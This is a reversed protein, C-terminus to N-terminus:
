AQSGGMEKPHNKGGKEWTPGDAGGGERLDWKRPVWSEQCQRGSDACSWRFELIRVRPASSLISPVLQGERGRRGKYWM